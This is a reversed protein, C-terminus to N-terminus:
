REAREPHTTVRSAALPDAYPSVADFARGSPPQQVLEVTIGDPDRLYAVLKGALPGEAIGVAEPSRLEAVDRMRDLDAHIDTTQLCLHSNGANYTEMDVRGPPPVHYELMELVTGGPLAWAAASLDCGPYGVIRGIRDDTEAALVTVRQFPEAGLLRSWWPISRDLSSVVIGVHDVAVIPM